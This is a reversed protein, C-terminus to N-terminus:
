GFQSKTPHTIRNLKSTKKVHYFSTKNPPPQSKVSKIEICNKPKQVLNKEVNNLVKIM